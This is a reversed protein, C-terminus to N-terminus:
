ALRRRLKGRGAVRGHGALGLGAAPSFAVTNTIAPSGDLPILDVNLALVRIPLSDATLVRVPVSVSLNGAAQVM